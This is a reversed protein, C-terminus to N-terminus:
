NPLIVHIKAPHSAGFEDKCHMLIKQALCTKEGKKSHGAPFVRPIAISYNKLKKPGSETVSNETSTESMQAAAEQLNEEM